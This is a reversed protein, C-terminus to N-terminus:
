IGDAGYRAMTSKVVREMTLGQVVLSFVVVAYTVALIVGREEGLPISLALAVSVGGRLGGWTLIRVAGPSFRQARPLFLGPGGISVFRAFLVIPIVLLSILVYEATFTLVLVELGILVFLIANLIQDVLEWYIDLSSRTESPISPRQGYNGIVLGATVVAIPGSFHLPDALAYSGTAVALTILVSLEENVLSKLMANGLFGIGLGFLLGGLSERIFLLGIEGATLKESGTLFGLIVLFAVVAVGDNFLSEGAIKMELAKPVRASKLVGMVAVADTPSILAGFLLCHLYTLHLNTWGLALWMLTGIVATSVLVGATALFGVSWKRQVLDHINIHLAGAFLLFSLMGHLVTRNFDIRRLWSEVAREELVLGLPEMLNLVLSCGLAILMVGITIPLGIYRDNVYACAATLAILIAWVTFLDM